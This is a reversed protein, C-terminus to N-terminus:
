PELTRVRYGGRALLAPVGEEGVMHGAGLVVFRTRGDEALELLRTAMRRNREFFVREYFTDLEPVDELDQFVLAQLEQEDGREWAQILKETEEALGGARSLTDLLLVEQVEPSISDLVALQSAPTELAVIPKSGAADDIFVRDVGLEADYGARALEVQVITFALFWPKMRVFPEHQLGREALYAELAQWTEESVVGEVTEPGPLMAFHETLGQLEAPRISSLDVEVVLEQSAEYAERVTPGLDRMRDDGLHVSGMLFYAAEGEPAEALWLLPRPGGSRAEPAEEPAGGGQACALLACAVAGALGGLGRAWSGKL